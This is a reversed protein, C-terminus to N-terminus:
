DDEDIQELYVLQSPKGERRAEQALLETPATMYM